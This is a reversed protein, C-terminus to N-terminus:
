QCYFGEHTQLHVCLYMLILAENLRLDSDYLEKVIKGFTLGRCRAKLFYACHLGCTEADIPQIQRRNYRIYRHYRWLSLGYTEPSQGFSDFFDLQRPHRFVAVWHSGEQDHRDINLIFAYTQRRPPPEPLQDSPFVGLFYERTSPDCRLLANLQRTDM